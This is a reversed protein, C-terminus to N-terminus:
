PRRKPRTTNIALAGIAVAPLLGATILPKLSPHKTIFEAIPPGFKSDVEAPAQGVPKTLLYEYRFELLIEVDKATPTGYATTAM